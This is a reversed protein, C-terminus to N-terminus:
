TLQKYKKLAEPILKLIDSAIIGDKGYKKEALVGTLGHIYVASRVASILDTYGTLGAIIGCLIDGSGSTSLTVSSRNNIYVQRDPTSIITFVGKLIVICNFKESVEQAYKIRNSEVEKVPKNILVGMEGPHPTIVFVKKLKQIHSSNEALLTIGDADIILNDPQNKILENLLMKSRPNIGVGPGFVVSTSNSILNLVENDDRYIVEPSNVACIKAINLPTILTSYGAGALLSAKSSFFPAGYYGASGAITLVKGNSGKHSNRARNPLKLPINIYPTTFSKFADKPASIPSVIIEGCYDAGPYLFQGLKYSLFTVTLDAKIVESGMLTGDLGNVGSPIDISLVRAKSDNIKKIITTAKIDLDRNLGIGFLADIILTNDSLNINEIELINLNKVSNYNRLSPEKYNPEYLFSLSVNWGESNLIRALALGDGGNNGPGCLVTIEFNKFRDLLVRYVAHAANEMLIDESIYFSKTIKKELEKIQKPSFVKM